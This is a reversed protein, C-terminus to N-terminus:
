LHEPIPVIDWSSVWMSVGTKERHRRGEELMDTFKKWAEDTPHQLRFKREGNSWGCSSIVAAFRNDIGGAYAAVAAGFSHGIVGIRQPDVDSRSAMYVLANRTDEVEELCIVRGREGESDGCGRYDFRLAIYGWGAFMECTKSYTDGNKSNGFGHMVLMAPRREGTKLDEPTHVIGSLKLGDSDFTVPAQM